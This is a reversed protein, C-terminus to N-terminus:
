RVVTVPVTLIDGDADARVFYVGPAFSTADFRLTHQGASSSGEFVTQVQRGSRDYVRVALHAPRNLTYHLRGVGNMPNPLVNLINEDMVLRRQEAIGTWDSRDFYAARRQPSNWTLYLVGYRSSGLYEIAPHDFYPENDAVSVPTSWSGSYRRWVYRLERTSTYYRYIIASGGGARFTVDPSESRVMTDGGVYGIFWSSGPNGGQYNAIYSVHGNVSGPRVFAYLLTDHRAGVSTNTNPVTGECPVSYFQRWGAGRRGRLRATNDTAVYSVWIFTSDFGENFCADAGFWADTVGIDPTNRWTVAATDSWWYVLKGSYCLPLFYLRDDSQDQNSCAAIERISDAGTYTAIDVYFVGGQFEHLTGDTVSVRRVRLTYNSSGSGYVIYCDNGVVAANMSRLPVSAMLYYTESWSAGVNTSFNVAWYWSAGQQFLVIAFLNGSARHIDLQIQSISDRNGVRIDSGWDAGVTPIPERWACGVAVDRPNVLRGLEGFLELASDFRGANWEGEIARALEQAEAPASGPLEVSICANAREAPSMAALREWVPQFAQGQEPEAPVADSRSWSRAPVLTPGTVPLEQAVALATGLLFVMVVARM